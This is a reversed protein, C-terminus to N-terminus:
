AYTKVLGVLADLDFPKPLYSDALCHDAIKDLDRAASVMVVPIWRTLPHTKIHRCLEHGPIEALREDLLILDPQQEIIAEIPEAENSPLVQYGADELIYQMMDLIDRDDEIVIIKKSM